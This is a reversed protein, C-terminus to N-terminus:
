ERREVKQNTGRMSQAKQNVALKEITMAYACPRTAVARKYVVLDPTIV